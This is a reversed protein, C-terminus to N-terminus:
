KVERRIYIRERLVEIVFRPIAISRRWRKPDKVIRYFWELNLNIWIAPARKVFGSLVDFSGGVGMFCGKEVKKLVKDIWIDQAPYGKAVFIYDPKLNIIDNTIKDDEDDEYGHNYGVINLNVYKNTINEIMSELVEEKAGYFYVKQRNKNAMELMNEMLEIGPVREPINQNLIKAGKVIGIGDPVIYTANKMIEFYKKSKKSHVAIEANVTVIHTKEGKDVRSYILNLLDHRNLSIFPIDLISVKKM